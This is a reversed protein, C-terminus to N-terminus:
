TRRVDDGSLVDDVYIIKARDNLYTDAGHVTDNSTTIKSPTIVKEAFEILDRLFYARNQLYVEGLRIIDDGFQILIQDTSETLHASDTTFQWRSKLANDIMQMTDQLFYLIFVLVGSRTLNTQYEVWLEDTTTLLADAVNQRILTSGPSWYWNMGTDVQYIGVTQANGNLTITPAVTLPDNMNFNRTAPYGSFSEDYSVPTEDTDQGLYRVRLTEISALPADDPNQWIRNDDHHYYWQKGTDYFAQGVTQESTDRDVRIISFMKHALIFIIQPLNGNFLMRTTGVYHVIEEAKLSDNLYHHIPGIARM